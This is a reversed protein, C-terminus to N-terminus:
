VLAIFVLIKLIESVAARAPKKNPKSVTTMLPALKGIFSNHFVEGHNWPVKIM